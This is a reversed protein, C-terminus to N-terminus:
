FIFLNLIYHRFWCVGQLHLIIFFKGICVALFICLFMFYRSYMGGVERQFITLGCFLILTIIFSIREWLKDRKQEYFLNFIYYLGCVEVACLVGQAIRLWNM